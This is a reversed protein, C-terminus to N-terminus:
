RDVNYRSIIRLFISDPTNDDEKNIKCAIIRMGDGEMSAINGRDFRACDIKNLNM